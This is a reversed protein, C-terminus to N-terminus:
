HAASLKKLVRMASPIDSALEVGFTGALHLPGVECMNRLSKEGIYAHFYGLASVLHSCDYLDNGSFKKSKNWRFLAHFAANLYATRLIQCAEPKLIISNSVVNRFVVPVSVPTEPAALMRYNSFANVLSPLFADVSGYIEDRLLKQFTTLTNSHEDIADRVLIGSATMSHDVLPAPTHFQAADVFSLGWAFDLAKASLTAPLKLRRLFSSANSDAVIGPRTWPGTSPAIYGKRNGFKELFKCFEFFTCDEESSLIAGGSLRDMLEFTARRSDENAQKLVELVIFWSVPFIIQGATALEYAFNRLHIAEKTNGDRLTIWFNLDLFVRKRENVTAQWVRQKEEFQIAAKDTINLGNTQLEPKRRREHGFAV